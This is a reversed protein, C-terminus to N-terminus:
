LRSKGFAAVFGMVILILWLVPRTFTLLQYSSTFWDAWTLMLLGVLKALPYGKDPLGRFVVFVIPWAVWGLLLLLAYWAVVGLPQYWNLLGFSDFMEAWTGANTQAELRDPTLRLGTPMATYSRPSQELM